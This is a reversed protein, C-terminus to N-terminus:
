NKEATNQVEDTDSSDSKELMDDPLIAEDSLNAVGFKSKRTEKIQQVKKEIVKALKPVILTTVAILGMFLLWIVFYKVYTMM